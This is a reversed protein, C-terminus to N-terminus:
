RAMHKDLFQRFLSAWRLAAQEVSAWDTATGAATAFTPVEASDAARALVNGTQSDKLEMLFVLSGPRALDRVDSRLEVFEASSASRMDILTAQVAMTRPGSRDTVSYDSLEGLFADRFLQRIRRMDQETTPASAPFYIGAEEALLSDYRGFDADTALQASAVRADRQVEFSRTEVTSCASLSGALACVLAIRTMRHCDTDIM